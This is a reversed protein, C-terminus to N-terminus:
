EAEKFVFNQDFLRPDDFHTRRILEIAHHSRQRMSGIKPIGMSFLIFREVRDSGKAIGRCDFISATGGNERPLAELIDYPVLEYPIAATSEGATLLREVQHWGSNIRIGLRKGAPLIPLWQPIFPDHKFPRSIIRDVRERVPAFFHYCGCNNMVDWMFPKGQIDLSVRFTLGDLHGKEISPPSEGARESYWIVYNIQLVPKEKLFAHSFYYYVTPREPGIELRDGKWSVKGIRDYPAAVDQILFPALSLALKKGQDADPQPVGLPNKRSEDMTEHVAKDDLSLNERPVYTRLQGKVPLDDFDPEYWSRTKVRAKHSVVAVPIVMLPFLGIARRLFSYEDPVDVRSALIAHFEASAQDRNLLRDSCSEVRAKFEKRDPQTTKIAQFSRVTDEPLNSIEKERAQLDLTKMWQLWQEQDREDRIRDKMAALFRNTRLYPFGPILFNSADRVGAEEVQKELQDFFVQCGEISDPIPLVHRPSLSTCGLLLLLFLASPISRLSYIKM